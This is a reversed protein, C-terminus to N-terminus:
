PVHIQEITTYNSAGMGPYNTEPKGAATQCNMSVRIWYDIGTYKLPINTKFHIETGEMSNTITMPTTFLNGDSAGANISRSVQLSAERLDPMEYGSKQNRTFKVSCNLYGNADVTPKQVWELTLYPTVSFDKTAKGKIDILEGADDNDKNVDDYPFFAGSYPLLRYTGNFIKTNRYSGDQQVKLTRNATYTTSDKAWSIERIRIIGAGQNVQFPQNMHDLIKGEITCDPEDYNDIECGTLIFCLLVSLICYNFLKMHKM